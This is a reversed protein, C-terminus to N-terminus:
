ERGASALEAAWNLVVVARQEGPAMRVMVFRDGAPHIDYNTHTPNPVYSGVFLSDRRGLSFAPRTEITVGMIADGSRYYLRRGDPAWLPETGGGDSV